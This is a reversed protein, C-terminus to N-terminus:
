KLGSQHIIIEDWKDGWAGFLKLKRSTEDANPAAIISVSMTNRKSKITLWDYAVIISDNRNDDISAVNDGDYIIIGGFSVNGSIEKTGGSSEFSVKHPYGSNEQEICSILLLPLGILARQILRLSINAIM